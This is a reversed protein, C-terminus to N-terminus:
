MVCYLMNNQQFCAGAPACGTAGLKSIVHTVYRHCFGLIAEEHFVSLTKATLLFVAPARGTAGLKSLVQKIFILCLM